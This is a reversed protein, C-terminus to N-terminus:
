TWDLLEHQITVSEIMVEDKGASLDSVALKSPWCKDLRFKAVETADRGFIVITATKYPTKDKGSVVADFWEYLGKDATLGRKLEVPTYKPRGPRKREVIMKGDGQKFTVPEFDVSLGSCGTFYGLTLGDISLSFFSGQFDGDHDMTM